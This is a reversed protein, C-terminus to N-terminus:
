GCNRSLLGFYDNPDGNTERLLQGSGYDGTRSNLGVSNSHANLIQPSSWNTQGAALWCYELVNSGTNGVFFVYVSGNTRIAIEGAQGYSALTTPPDWTAGGNSSHSALIANSNGISSGTVYLDHFTSSHSYNNVAIMPKDFESIGSSPVNSNIM